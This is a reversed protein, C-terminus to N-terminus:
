KTGNKTREREETYKEWSMKICAFGAFLMVAYLWLPTADESTTDGTKPSATQVKTGGEEPSATQVKTGEAGSAAVNQIAGGNNTKNGGPSTEAAATDENVSFPTGASGDEYLVTIVHSGKSLTELYSTKLDIITSGKEVTYDSSGVLVGDVWVSEFKEFEGDVRIRIGASLGDKWVSNAGEIVHYANLKESVPAGDAAIEETQMERCVACEREMVGNGADTAIQKLTWKGYRHGKAEIVGTEKEGCVSCIRERTGDAMCAAEKVVEWEGYTHPIKPITETVIDGCIACIKIKSGEETCTAERIVIREEYMHDLMPVTETEEEGCVQCVHRREGAQTCTAEEVAEWEGYNHPIKPIIETKESGTNVAQCRTCVETITRSGEETCTAEVTVVKEEYAHELMPVIETETEGGTRCVRRREGTQTCTAERVVEWEGYSHETKPITETVRDGCRTCTMTRSGEETCTAAKMGTEQYNHGLEEVIETKESGPKVIQCKKCVEKTTRSGATTCAPETKEEVTEWEHDCQVFNEDALEPYVFTSDLRHEASFSSGNFGATNSGALFYEYRITSQDDWTVDVAYWKGNELKVCNWMHAETGGSTVGDGTALICPIGFENCLIKFAKAYGECVVKKNGAFATYVNHAYQYASDGSLADYNYELEECLYDHIARLTDYASAGVGLKTEVARKAEAVSGNFEGIKESYKEAYEGPQLIYSKIIGNWGSASEESPVVGISYGISLSDIWFVQPYDKMLGEFASGVAAQVEACAANYADNQVVSNGSVEAEFIVPNDFSEDINGTLGQTVYTDVMADYIEKATGDLQDGFCNQFSISRLTLMSIGTKTGERLSISYSEVIMAPNEPLEIEETSLRAISDKGRCIESIGNGPIVEETDEPTRKEATEPMGEEAAEPIMEETGEPMGEEETEPIAEETGEPMIEETAEPIVEETGEPMVEETSEPIVEETGEPTVEEAAVPMAEEPVDARVRLIDNGCCLALACLLAIIQKKRKRMKM